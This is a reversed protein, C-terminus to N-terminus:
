QLIGRMSRVPQNIADNMAPEPRPAATMKPTLIPLLTRDMELSGEICDCSGAPVIKPLLAIIVEVRERNINRRQFLRGVLWVDGLWPIKSQREIASEQILGGIIIGSGDPVMVSTALETTDEEPLDSNPNIQGSSVKPQVKLLIQGDDAIHPTVNLVVGVDLFQVGQVTVTQTTTSTTYALRQGIQIKSEQGNLM